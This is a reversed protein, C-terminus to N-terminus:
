KRRRDVSIPNIPFRKGEREFIRSLLIILIIFTAFTALSIEGLGVLLGISSTTWLSAATTIGLVIEKHRAKEAIITGAGIFGMGTVVGAAIRAPDMQFKTSIIMFICSGLAVLIHTRLGAPRHISERELGIISGLVVAIIMRLAYESEFM